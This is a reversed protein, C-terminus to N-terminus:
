VSGLLGGVLGASDDVFRASDPQISPNSTARNLVFVLPWQGLSYGLVVVLVTFAYWYWQHAGDRAIRIFENM